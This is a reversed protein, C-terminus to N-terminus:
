GFAGLPKWAICESLKVRARCYNSNHVYNTQSPPWVRKTKDESLMMFRNLRSVKFVQTPQPIRRKIKRRFAIIVAVLIIVFVSFPIVFQLIEQLELDSYYQVKFNALDGAYYKSSTTVPAKLTAGGLANITFNLSDDICNTASKESELDVTANTTLFNDSGQVTYDVFSVVYNGVRAVRCDTSYYWEITANSYPSQFSVRYTPTSNYTAKFWDTIESLKLLEINDWSTLNGIVEEPIWLRNKAKVWDYEFM